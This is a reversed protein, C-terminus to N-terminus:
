SVCPFSVEKELSCHQSDFGVDQVKEGWDERMSNSGLLVSIVICLNGSELHHSM